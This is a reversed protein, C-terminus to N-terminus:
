SSMSSPPSSYQVWWPSIVARLAWPNTLSLRSSKSRSSRSPQDPITPSSWPPDLLRLARQGHGPLRRGCRGPEHVSWAVTSEQEEQRDRGEREDPRATVFAGPTPGPSDVVVPDTHLRGPVGGRHLTGIPISFAPPRLKRVAALNPAPFITRGGSLHVRPPLPLGWHLPDDQVLSRRVQSRDVAWGPVPPRRVASRKQRGPLVIRADVFGGVRRAEGGVDGTPGGLIPPVRRGLSSEQHDAGGADPQPLGQELVEAGPLDDLPAVTARQDPVGDGIGIPDDDGISGPRDQDVCPGVVDGPAGVGILHDSSVPAQDLLDAESQPVHM